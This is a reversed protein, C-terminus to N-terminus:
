AGWVEAESKLTNVLILWTRKAWPQTSLFHKASMPVPMVSTIPPGWSKRGGLDSSNWFSQRKSVSIYILMVAMLENTWSVPVQPWCREKKSLAVGHIKIMIKIKERKWSFIHSVSWILARTYLKLKMKNLWKWDLHGKPVPGQHGIYIFPMARMCTCQDHLPHQIQRAAIIYSRHCVQTEASSCRPGM